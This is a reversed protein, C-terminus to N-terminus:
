QKWNRFQRLWLRFKADFAMLSGFYIAMMASSIVVVRVLPSLDSILNIDRFVWFVIAALALSPAMFKLPNLVSEMHIDAYHRFAWIHGGAVLLASAIQAGAVVEIGYPAAVLTAVTSVIAQYIAIKPLARVAGALSLIPEMAYGTVMILYAIALASAVPAAAEWQSGMLGVILDRSIFALTLYMPVALMLVIAFFTTGLAKFGDATGLHDARSKRFMTWALVRTPEGIIEAFAGILRQAARYYGVPAAGLFGGILFVAVYQRLNVLFRVVLINMSFGVVQRLVQGEIHLTPTARGVLLGFVILCVGSVLRGYVLAFVGDGRYLSFISVVLSILDCAIAIIASSVLRNQFNLLGSVSGGFAGLFVAIAFLQMLPKVSADSSFVPALFSLAYGVLGFLLGSLISISIIQRLHADDDHLNMICEAWGAVAVISLLMAMSSVLSFVGFEAPTM